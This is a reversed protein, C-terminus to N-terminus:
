RDSTVRASKLATRIKSLWEDGLRLQDGAVFVRVGRLKTELFRKLAKAVIEDEHIYSIFIREMHPKGETFIAAEM